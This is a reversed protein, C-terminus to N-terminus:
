DKLIHRAKKIIYEPYQLKELIKIGGKVHSIGSVLKYKYKLNNHYTDIAMHSNKISKNDDLRHCLDIFHTTLMFTTNKQLTLFELFSFSSAVAEYPNTGSYLEDFICFHRELHSSKLINDLIEKCRRAEAQFLSDRGSTDPINLYCHIYTYPTISASKYFGAGWQQSLLINITTTKLLTTKGAANPGTIILQKKLNYSNTIPKGAVLPYYANKFKTVKNTFKCNNIRKDKHLKNLSSVNDIYGIFSMSFRMANNYRENKHLSYFIQMASGLQFLKNADNSFPTINSINTKIDTLIKKNDKITNNFQSYTDLNNSIYLFEDMKKISYDIYHNIDFIYEHMLKMRKYFSSCCIVNQYIQFIYFAISILIYFRKEWSVDSTLTFIQGIAHKGAVEKLVETYKSFSLSIGQLKLIFFPMIMFIIPLLISLVPSLLNYMTLIQLFPASENLQQAIDYEVYHFKNIFDTNNKIDEWITNINELKENNYINMSADYQNYLLQSQNLFKEDTTYLPAWQKAMTTGYSTQPNLVKAYFNSEKDEKFETLELDNILSKSLENHNVFKIPLKFLDDEIQSM